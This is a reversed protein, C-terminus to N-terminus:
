LDFSEVLLLSMWSGVIHCILCLEIAIM